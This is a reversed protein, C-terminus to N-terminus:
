LNKFYSRASDYEGSNGLRLLCAPLNETDEVEIAGGQSDGKRRVRAGKEGEDNSGGGRRSLVGPKGCKRPFGFSFRDEKVEGEEGEGERGGDM